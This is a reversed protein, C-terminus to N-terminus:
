ASTLATVYDDDYGGAYDYGEEGKDENAATRRCRTM